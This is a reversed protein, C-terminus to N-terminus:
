ISDEETMLLHRERSERRERERERKRGRGGQRGRKRGTEVVRDREQGTNRRIKFGYRTDRVSLGISGRAVGPLSATSLLLWWNRWGHPLEPLSLAEPIGAAVPTCQYYHLKHRTIQTFQISFSSPPPPPTTLQAM